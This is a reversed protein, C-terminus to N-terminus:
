RGGEGGVLEPGDDGGGGHGGLAGSELTWEVTRAV